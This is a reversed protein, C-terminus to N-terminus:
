YNFILRFNFSNASFDESFNEIGSDVFNYGYELQLFSSRSFSYNIGSKFKAAFDTFDEDYSLGASGGVSKIEDNYKSFGVGGGVFLELNERVDLDLVPGFIVSFSSIDGDVDYSTNAVGTFTTAGVTATGAATLDLKDYDFNVFALETEIALFDNLRYGVLGGLQFGNDFKFTGAVSASYTVGNVIGSGSTRFDVDNPSFIGANFGLYLNNNLSYTDSKSHQPNIIYLLFFFIYFLKSFNIM